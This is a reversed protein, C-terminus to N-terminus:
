VVGLRYPWWLLQSTQLPLRTAITGVVVDERHEYWSGIALLMGQRISEPVDVANGGYGVVIRITVSNIESRTAPYTKGFALAIRGPADFPTDVDYNSTAWTQSSGDVADRYNISTVSQLPARPVEICSRPPFNDLKWDWTQTMLARHTFAEAQMRAATALAGLYDNDANGTVRLHDKAETISVPEDAPATVLALNLM